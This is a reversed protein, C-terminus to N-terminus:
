AFPDYIGPTASPYVGKDDPVVPPKTDWTYTELGPAECKGKEVAEDWKVIKGSYTAMRGLVATMSSTAGHKGENYPLDRRIANLLACHEQQMEGFKFELGHTDKVERKSVNGGLEIRDPGKNGFAYESVLSFCGVVQRCQSYM